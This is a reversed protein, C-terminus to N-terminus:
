FLVALEKVMPILICSFWNISDKGTLRSKTLKITIANILILGIKYVISSIDNLVVDSYVFRKSKSSYQFRTQVSKEAPWHSFPKLRYNTSFAKPYVFTEDFTM